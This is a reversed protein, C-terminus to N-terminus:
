NQYLSIVIEKFKQIFNKNNLSIKAEDEMSTASEILV